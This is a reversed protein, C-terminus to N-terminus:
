SLLEMKYTDLDDADLLSSYGNNDTVGEVVKGTSSTLRFKRNALIQEPDDGAHLQYRLKFAGQNFPPVTVQASEPGDYKLNPGKLEIGTPSFITVLGNPSVRIGGGGCVLQIGQKASGNLQGATSAMTFDNQSHMHMAGRQAQTTIDGAGAIMQIGLKRAFLSLKEGVALSFKKVVNVSTDQGATVIVDKGASLQLSDPTVHAQGKDAYTLLGAGTLNTLTQSLQSQQDTEVNSAGATLASQQLTMALSLAKELQAIAATMDLQKGAARPQAETTIMVGKAARLAMHNDTHAEVGEGRQKGEADVLHGASVQSKGYETSIKIHEKGRRDELRIKNSAATRIVNRTDNRNTVLDPHNGDHMVHAIFPRDPDGGEFAVAVETGDLLPFHFGFVDGGYPRGLRMLASEFGDRKEDLDFDFKVRYRGQADVGAYTHDRNIAAVRGPVTGAIVPRPLYEPRYSYGNLYPIGKLIARYHQARSGSLTMTTVLFGHKFGDPIEGTPHFMVGPLIEPASTTGGLVSQKNLLREYRLRAYFSATEAEEGYFDGDKLYHDAYHYQKGSTIGDPIDNDTITKDAQPSFPDRYNYTRVLVNDPILQYQEELETIYEEHSTMGSHRVYPLQKNSFVYRRGSDGFIVVTEGQVKDHNEFRFWIGLEALLRRIFQLDTEKWQIVMERRPYSHNLQDFDINYGEFHGSEKMLQSVLEPVTVNMYVASRYNRDLLALEHELVCEYLAEDASSKLRSFSTIVGNIQRVPLWPDQNQWGAKPNPARLIFEAMQNLINNVAINSTPSTFRITYRYPKSLEEEGIFSHVDPLVSKSRPFYLLYRNLTNQQQIIDSQGAM